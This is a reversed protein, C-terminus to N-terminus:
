PKFRLFQDAMLFAKHVNKKTLEENSVGRAALDAIYKYREPNCLLAHLIVLATIRRIM